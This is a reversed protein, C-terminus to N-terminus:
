ILIILVYITLLTKSNIKAIIINHANTSIFDFKITLAGLFSALVILLYQNYALYENYIKNKKKSFFLKVVFLFVFNM